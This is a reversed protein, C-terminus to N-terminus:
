PARRHALQRGGQLRKEGLPEHALTLGARVGDGAVAVGEPQQQAEGGAVGVGRRGLQVEGVQVGRQDRREQGVQFGLAAVPHAGAVVAERRDV